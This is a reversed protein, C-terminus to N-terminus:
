GPIFSSIRRGMISSTRVTFCFYIKIYCPTDLTVLSSTSCERKMELVKCNLVMTGYIVLNQFVARVSFILLHRTVHLFM